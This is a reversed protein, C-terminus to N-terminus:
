AFSKKENMEGYWSMRLGLSTIEGFKESFGEEVTATIRINIFEDNEWNKEILFLGSSDPKVFSYIDNSDKVELTFKICKETTTRIYFVENSNNSDKKLLFEIDRDIISLDTMLNKITKSDKKEVILEVSQVDGSHTNMSEFLNIGSIPILENNQKKVYVEM